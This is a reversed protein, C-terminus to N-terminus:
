LGMRWEDNIFPNEDYLANAARDRTQANENYEDQTVGIKFAMEQIEQEFGNINGNFRKFFQALKFKRDCLSCFHSDSNFLEGKYHHLIKEANPQSHIEILENITLEHPNIADLYM